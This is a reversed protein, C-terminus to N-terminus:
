VSLRSAAERLQTHLDQEKPKTLLGITTLAAISGQMRGFEMIPAAHIEIGAVFNGRDVSIGHARSYGIEEIWDEFKPSNAWKISAFQKRQKAPPDDSAAAFLRGTASALVPLRHGITVRIGIPLETESVAVVVMRQHSDLRTISTTLQFKDAIQDLETQANAEPLNVNLARRALTVLGLGISCRRDNPDVVILDELELARIIHHCTSPVIGVERAISNVGLPVDSRALLRLIAVARNVAPARTLPVEVSDEEASQAKVASVESSRRGAPGKDPGKARTVKAAGSKTAM